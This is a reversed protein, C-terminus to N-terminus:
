WRREEFFTGIVLERVADPDIERAADATEPQEAEPLPMLPLAVSPPMEYRQSKDGVKMVAGSKMDTVIYDGLTAYLDNLEETSRQELDAKLARLQTEADGAVPAYGPIMSAGELEFGLYDTVLEFGLLGNVAQIMRLGNEDRDEGLGYVERLRMKQGGGPLEVLTNGDIRVPTIRKENDDIVILATFDSVDRGLAADPVIGMLLVTTLRGRLSYAKGNHELSPIDSFRESLDGRVTEAVAAGALLAALLAVAVCLKFLRNCM